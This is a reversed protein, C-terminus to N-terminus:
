YPKEMSEPTAQQSPERYSDADPLLRRKMPDHGALRAILGTPVFVLFFALSLILPTTVRNLLLGFRMWGRYVPRLSRPAALGWLMLIAALPWPWIPLRLGFLWPLILGFLTAVIAGTTLAFRRLGGTDLEPIAHM